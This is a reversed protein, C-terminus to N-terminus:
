KLAVVLLIVVLLILILTTTSIVVTSAGGTLAGNVQRAASAARALDAGALTGVAADARALDVGMETAVKQVEPRALAERVAARDADQSSLHGSIAGAIAAPDVAHHQQASAAPVGAMTMLLALFVVLFGRITIMQSAEM